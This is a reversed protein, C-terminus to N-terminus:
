FLRGWSVMASHSKWVSKDNKGCSWRRYTWNVDAYFDCLYTWTLGVQAKMGHARKRIGRRRLALIGVNSERKRECRGSPRPSFELETYVSWIPLITYAIDVGLWPGWWEHRYKNCQPTSCFTDEGIPIVFFRDSNNTLVRQKHYSVGCTPTIRLNGRLYYVPYGVGLTGDVIHSGKFGNSIDLCQRLTELREKAEGCDGWGYNFYGRIYAVGVPIQAKVGVFVFEQDEFDLKTNRITSDIELDIIQDFDFFNSREIKWKTDDWRYGIGVQLYNEPCFLGGAFIGPYCNYCTDGQLPASTAALFLISSLLWKKLM